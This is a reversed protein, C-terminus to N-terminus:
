SPNQLSPHTDLYRQLRWSRFSWSRWSAIDKAQDDLLRAHIRVLAPDQPSLVMARAIAPLAQPGLTALYPQDLYAGNRGAERSHTVNYDAIMGDFNMLGCGYVTAAVVLLNMRILWRNSHDRAIRIVILVLGVAVVAMWILAAIRWGTLLYSEIYLHVRQISSLVLMLNQGVWLYVLPRVLRSKEPQESRIALIVFAAALLATIMLPYAGRHAYAAYTMGDPLAAHGWLYVGDLATQIAFLINFLVLSRIVTQPGLLPGLLSSADDHVASGFLSALPKPPPRLVGLFL